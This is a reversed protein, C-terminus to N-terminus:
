KVKMNKYVTEEGCHRCRVPRMPCDKELHYALDARRLTKGCGSKLCKVAQFECEAEHAQICLNFFIIKVNVLRSPLSHLSLFTIGESNLGWKSFTGYLYFNLIPIPSLPSVFQIEQATVYRSTTKPVSPLFSADYSWVTRGTLYLELLSLSGLYPRASSGSYILPVMKFAHPSTCSTTM